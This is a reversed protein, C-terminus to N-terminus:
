VRGGIFLSSNTARADNSMMVAAHWAHIATVIKEVKGIWGAETPFRVVRRRECVSSIIAENIIVVAVPNQKSCAVRQARRSSVDFGHRNAGAM